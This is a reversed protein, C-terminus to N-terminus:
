GNTLYEVAETLTAVPVLELDDGAIRRMEQQEEEPTDAPYLFTDVGNRIVTATKQATGGIVGVSGDGLIEGTVAVDRGETLSEETLVDIIALSWALGASPGTVSGSDIEVDVDSDIRPNFPEVTVGLVARGDAETLEVELAMSERQEDAASASEGPALVVREVTLSVVEGPQGEALADRLEAPTTVATDGVAVIVDDPELVSASPSDDAVDLVRVGDAAFTAEEGLFELAQQTAVLKSLDMERRNIRRTEDRGRDGYVEDSSRVEIADDLSGRLLGFLTADDVYVTTFLVDGDTEYAETDGGVSVRDEAPRVAGPQILVYPTPIFLAGLVAAVLMTLGLGWFWRRRNRRRRAATDIAAPDSVEPDSGSVDGPAEDPASAGGPPLSSGTMDASSM